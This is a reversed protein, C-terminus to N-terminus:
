FLVMKNKILIMKKFNEEKVENGFLYFKRDSFDEEESIAIYAADKERHLKGNHYYKKLNFVPYYHVEYEKGDEIIKEKKYPIKERLKNLFYSIINYLILFLIFFIPVQIFAKFISIWSFVHNEIFRASNAENFLFLAFSIITSPLIFLIIVIDSRELLGFKGKLFFKFFKM